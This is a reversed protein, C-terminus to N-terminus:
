EEKHKALWFQYGYVAAQTPNGFQRTFRTLHYLTRFAGFLFPISFVAPVRLDSRVVALYELRMRWRARLDGGAMATLHLLEAFTMGARLMGARLMGPLLDRSYHELRTLERCALLFDKESREASLLALLQRADEGSRPELRRGRAFRASVRVLDAVKLRGAAALRLGAPPLALASDPRELADLERGFQMWEGADPDGAERLFSGFVNLWSSRGAPWTWRAPRVRRLFYHPRAVGQRVALLALDPREAALLITATRQWFLGAGIAVVSRSRRLSRELDRVLAPSAARRRLAFWLIRLSTPLALALKPLAMIPTVVISLVVSFGWLLGAIVQLPFWLFSRGKTRQRVLRNVASLM